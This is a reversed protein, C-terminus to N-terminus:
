SSPDFKVPVVLVDLFHDREKSCDKSKRVPKDIASAGVWRATTRPSRRKVDASRLAACRKRWGRTRQGRTRASRKWWGGCRRRRGECRKWRGGGGGEERGVVGGGVVGSRIEGGVEVVGSLVREDGGVVGSLVRVGREVSWDGSLRRCVQRRERVGGGSLM